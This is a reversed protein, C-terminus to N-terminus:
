RAVVHLSVLASAASGFSMSRQAVLETRTVSSTSRTPLSVKANNL